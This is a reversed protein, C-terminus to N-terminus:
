ISQRFTLLVAEPILCYWIPQNATDKQRSRAYINCTEHSALSAGTTSTKLRAYEKVHANIVRSPKINKFYENQISSHITSNIRKGIFHTWSCLNSLKSTSKAEEGGPYVSNKKKSWCVYEFRWMMTLTNLLNNYVFACQILIGINLKSGCLKM